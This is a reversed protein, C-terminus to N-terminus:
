NKAKIKFEEYSREFEKETVAHFMLKQNTKWFSLNLGVTAAQFNGQLTTKKGDVQTFFKVMLGDTIGNLKYRIEEYPKQENGTYSMMLLSGELEGQRLAEDIKLLLQYEGNEESYFYGYVSKIETFFTNLRNKEKEEAYYLAEDLEQQLRAAYKDLKNKNSSQYMVDNEKGQEQVLLNKGSFKAIYTQTKGKQTIQLEYGKDTKKGTLPYKYEQIIPVKGIEEILQQQHFTGKIKGMRSSCELWQLKGKESSVFFESQNLPEKRDKLVMWGIAAGLLLVLGAAVGLWKIKNM